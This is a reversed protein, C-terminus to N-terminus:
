APSRSLAARRATRMNFSAPSVQGCTSSPSRTAISAGADEDGLILLQLEFVPFQLFLQRPQAV